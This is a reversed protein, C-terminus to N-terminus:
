SFTDLADEIIIRSHCFDSCKCSIWFEQGFRALEHKLNSEDMTQIDNLVTNMGLLNSRFPTYKVDNNGKIIKSNLVGFTKVHISTLISLISAKEKSDQSNMLMHALTDIRSLIQSQINELQPNNMVDQLPPDSGPGGIQM